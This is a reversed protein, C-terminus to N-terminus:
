AIMIMGGITHAVITWWITGTRKALFALYFGMVGSGIILGLVNGDPAVSGPAYHWLAFWITPWVIRLLISDPFLEMYVGRWLVEEFFGNGLSTSLLLLLIWASPKEYEMGPVLRYLAAGILPVLILLLVGVTLRQPRIMSAISEKGVIWLPFAACWTLWYIVLGLYWGIRWNQGFVRALMRFVPVMTGVLLLPAVIALRQKSSM